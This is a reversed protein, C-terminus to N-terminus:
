PKADAKPAPKEEPKTAPNAAPTKAKPGEAQVWKYTGEKEGAIEIWEGKFAKDIRLKWQITQIENLAKNQEKALKRMLLNRDENENDVTRKVYDGWDGAPVERMALLGRHDEGIFRNNKLTQIEEMRNRQRTTAESANKAAEKDGPEDGRYQYIDLRMNLNVELPAPTTLPIAPFQKCGTLTLAALAILSLSSRPSPRM